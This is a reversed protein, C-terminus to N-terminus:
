IRITRIPKYTFTAKFINNDQDDIDTRMVITMPAIPHKMLFTHIEIILQRMTGVKIETTKM